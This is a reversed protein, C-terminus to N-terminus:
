YVQDLEHDFHPLEDLILHLSLVAFPHEIAFDVTVTVVAVAAAVLACHFASNWTWYNLFDM